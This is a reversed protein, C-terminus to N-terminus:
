GRKMAHVAAADEKRKTVPKPKRCGVEMKRAARQTKAVVVVKDKDVDDVVSVVQLEVVMM